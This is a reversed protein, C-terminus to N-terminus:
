PQEEMTTTELREEWIPKIHKQGIELMAKHTFLDSKIGNWRPSAVILADRTWYWLGNTKHNPDAVIVKLIVTLEYSLRDDIYTDGDESESMPACVLTGDKRWRIAM